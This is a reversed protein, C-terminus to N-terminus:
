SRCSRRWPARRGAPRRGSGPPTSRRRARASAAGAPTAGGRRQDLAARLDLVLDRATSCRLRLPRLGALSGNPSFPRAQIAACCSGISSRRVTSPRGAGAPSGRRRAPGSRRSSRGAPARRRPRAAASSSGRCRRRSRRRRQDGHDAVDPAERGRAMQDAVEPQVRRDALGAVPRGAVAADRLLARGGGAVHEDLRGPRRGLAGSRQAGERLAGGRPAAAVDRGDRDRALEGHQGPVQEGAALVVGERARAEHAALQARELERGARRAGLGPRVGVGDPVGRLSAASFRRAAAPRSRRGAGPRRSAPWRVSPPHPRSVPARM